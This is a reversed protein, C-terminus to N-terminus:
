KVGGCRKSDDTGAIPDCGIAPICSKKTGLTYADLKLPAAVPEKTDHALELEYTINSAPELESKDTRIHGSRQCQYEEVIGVAWNGVKKKEQEARRNFYNGRPVAGGPRGIDIAFVGGLGWWRWVVDKLAQENRFELNM